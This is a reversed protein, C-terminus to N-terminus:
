VYSATGQTFISEPMSDWALGGEQKPNIIQNNSRDDYGM